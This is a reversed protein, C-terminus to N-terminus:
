LTVSFSHLCFNTPFDRYKGITSAHSFHKTEVRTIDAFTCLRLQLFYVEVKRHKVFLGQEIVQRELPEQWV